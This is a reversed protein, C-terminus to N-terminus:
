PQTQTANLPGPALPRLKGIVANTASLDGSLQGQSQGNTEPSGSYSASGKIAGFGEVEASSLDSAYTYKSRPAHVSVEYYFSFGTGEHQEEVTETVPGKGRPKTAEAYM